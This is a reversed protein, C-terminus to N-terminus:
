SRSPTSKAKEKSFQQNTKNFNFLDQIELSFQTLLEGRAKHATSSLNLHGATGRRPCKGPSMVPWGSPSLLGWGPAAHRCVGPWDALEGLKPCCRRACRCSRPPDVPQGRWSWTAPITPPARGASAGDSSEFPLIKVPPTQNTNWTYEAWNLLWSQVLCNAWCPSCCHKQM